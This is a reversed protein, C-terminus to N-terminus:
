GRHVTVFNGSNAGCLLKRLKNNIAKVVVANAATDSYVVEIVDVKESKVKPDIPALPDNGQDIAIATEYQGEILLAPIEDSALIRGDVCVNVRPWQLAQTSDTKWGKYNKQEISDMSKILLITTNTVLTIGRAAAYAVLGTEDGYSDVGVVVPM